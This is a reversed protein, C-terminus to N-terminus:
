GELKTLAAMVTDMATAACIDRDLITFKVGTVIANGAAGIDINQYGVAHEIRSAGSHAKATGIHQHAVTFEIARGLEEEASAEALFLLSIARLGMTGM